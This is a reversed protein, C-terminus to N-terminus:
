RRPPAAHVSARTGPRPHALPRSEMRENEPAIGMKMRRPRHTQVVIARTRVQLRAAGCYNVCKRALKRTIRWERGGVVSASFGLGVPGAPGQRRPGTGACWRPQRLRPSPPARRGRPSSCQWPTAATCRRGQRGSIGPDGDDVSTDRAVPDAEPDAVRQIRLRGRDRPFRPRTTVTRRM